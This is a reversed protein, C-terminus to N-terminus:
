RSDREGSPRQAPRQGPRRLAVTQQEMVWRGPRRPLGNNGRQTSGRRLVVTDQAAEPDTGSEDGPEADPDAEPETSTTAPLMRRRLQRSVAWVVLTALLGILGGVLIDAPWHVGVYVRSIAVLVALVGLLVGWAVSVFIGVVLAVTLAATAHNSPLSAGPEHEMLQNVERTQFPRVSLEMARLVRNCLFGLLLAVATEGARWVREAFTQSRLRVLTVAAAALFLVYILPGAAFLMIEDLVPSTGALGNIADFVADNVGRWGM